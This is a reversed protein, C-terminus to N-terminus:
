KASASDRLNLRATSWLFRPTFRGAPSPVVIDTQLPAGDLVCEFFSFFVFGLRRRGAGSRVVRRSPTYFDHESALDVLVGSDHENTCGGEEEGDSCADDSDEAVVVLAVGTSELAAVTILQHTEEDNVMREGADSDSM